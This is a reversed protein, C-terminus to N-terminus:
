RRNFKLFDKFFDVLLEAEPIRFVQVVSLFYMVAGVICLAFIRFSLDVYGLEEIPNIIFKSGIYITIGVFFLSILLTGMFVMNEKSVGNSISRWLHWLAICLVMWWTLAYAFGIGKLMFVHSLVGSLLFYMSACLIGLCATAVVEHRAFLARFLIVVCLMPVMGTMMWPLLHAVGQTALADFAGRQFLLQIIPEALISVTVAIPASCVLVMRIARGTDKLFDQHRGQQHAEALRPVLVVSPGVIILSGLGIAIRHCYGLYSLSGAGLKPAWYADVTQYVSFCLMAMIVMPVKAFYGAVEKRFRVIDRTITLEPLAQSLLFMAALATGALLGWTVAVIGFDQKFSVAFLIMGIFPLMSALVPLLFRRATNHMSTLYGIIIAFGAVGWAIEAMLVTEDLISSPLEAWFLEVVQPSIYLGGSFLCVAVVSFSLLMLGSFRRYKDQDGKYSILTPVMSYSLVGVLTGSVLTPVSMAVLYADVHLSAGFFKAIVLQNLFSLLSAVVTLLSVALSSKLM